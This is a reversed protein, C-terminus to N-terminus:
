NVNAEPVVNEAPAANLTPVVNEAPAVNEAPVLDLPETLTFLLPAGEELTAQPHDVMLHVTIAGAGILGGTVAGAPGGLVAGTVVGAGVAGGYEVEDKRVRSGPNIGGEDGIRTHSGPTGSIEAHLKYRTGDPLIVVEPNLHMTGHGGLHGTSVQTVRGDIEAGAPILVQGDQLVDSAVKTRFKEGVESDSTSLREQLRVRISTGEVIEGPRRAHLHVIDGDPDNAYARNQLARESPVGVVGSDPDPNNSSPNVFAPRPQIQVQAPAVPQSYAPKGAPPKQSPADSTTIQDDSPPNSTGQFANSQSAEQAGVVMAAATFMACIFIPRNM